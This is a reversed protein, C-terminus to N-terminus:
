QHCCECKMIMNSLQCDSITKAHCRQFGQWKRNTPLNRATRLSILMNVEDDLSIAGVEAGKLKVQMHACSLRHHFVIEKYKVLRTLTVRQTEISQSRKNAFAELISVVITNTERDTALVKM